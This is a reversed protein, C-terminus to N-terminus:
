SPSAVPNLGPCVNWERDGLYGGPLAVHDEERAVVRGQEDLVEIIAGGRASYGPPWIIRTVIGSGDELLVLGWSASRVLQGSAMAVPCSHPGAPWPSQTTLAIPTSDAPGSTAKTSASGCAAAAVVVAVLALGAAVGTGRM